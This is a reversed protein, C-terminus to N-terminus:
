YPEINPHIKTYIKLVSVIVWTIHKLGMYLKCKAMNRKNNREPAASPLVFIQNGLNWSKLRWTKKQPWFFTMIYFSLNEKLHWANKPSTKIKKVRIFPDPIPAIRDNLILWFHFCIFHFIKRGLNVTLNQHWGGNFLIIYNYPSFTMLNVPNCRTDITLELLIKSKVM